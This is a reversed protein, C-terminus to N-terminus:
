GSVYEKCDGSECGADRRGIDFINGAITDRGATAGARLYSHRIMGNPLCCKVGHLLARTGGDVSKGRQAAAASPLVTDEQSVVACDELAQLFIDVSGGLHALHTGLETERRRYGERRGRKRRLM